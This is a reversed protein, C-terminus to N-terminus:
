AVRRLVLRIREGEQVEESVLTFGQEELKARAAHYAYRQAVQQVFKNQNIGRIGWWDAVIEYANGAKRFGIDYGFSRTPIKIEVPTRQGGYGRIKVNGEKYAYGLDELARLLYEKEVMQTKIRTFHSL